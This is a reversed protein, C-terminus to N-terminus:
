GKVSPLTLDKVRIRAAPDGLVIFNQADTREIWKWVVHEDSPKLTAETEDLDRLLDAALVGYRLNFDTMAHGVPEGRMVRGFFNLFPTLQSSLDSPVFSSTWIREIHGVVALIAGRPHSLLRQPLASIFPQDAIAIPGQERDELFADHKPVGAGYCAVMMAVMGHVSADDPVEAATMFHNANITGVGTWDQCLLAGQNARQETPDAKSWGMGHSATFLVAPTPRDERFALTELLNTKTAHKVLYPRLAFGEKTGLPPEDDGGNCLPSILSTTTATTWGDPHHPAWVVTERANRVKPATEYDIISKVYRRYGNLDDFALRGVAYELDLLYQFDFPIETADGVLLVYYPVKKPNINGPSVNHRKLWELLTEGPRYALTKLRDPAVQKRRHSVLPEVAARLDASAGEPLVVAWGAKSIQTPDVDYPLGLFPGTQRLSTWRLLKATPIKTRERRALELIHETSMPSVLYEGTKGDIGNAYIVNGSAKM